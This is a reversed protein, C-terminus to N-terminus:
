LREVPCISPKRGTNNEKWKRVTLFNYKRFRKRARLGTYTLLRKRSMVGTLIAFNEKFRKRFGSSDSDWNRVWASLLDFRRLNSTNVAKIFEMNEDMDDLLKFTEGTWDSEVLKGYRM